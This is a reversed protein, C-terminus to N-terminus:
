GCRRGVNVRRRGGDGGSVPVQREVTRYTAPLEIVRGSAPKLIVQEIEYAYEPPFVVRRRYEPRVVVTESITEFRPGRKIKCLVKRGNIWRWEWAYGGKVQVTRYRTEVIPPIVEHSIRWPTVMVARRRWGYVPPVYEVYRRPPSVMVNEHVTAHVQATRYREYCAVPRGGASAPSVAALFVLCATVSCLVPKAAM